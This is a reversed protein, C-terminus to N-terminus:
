RGEPAGHSLRKIKKMMQQIGNKVDSGDLHSMCTVGSGAFVYVNLM